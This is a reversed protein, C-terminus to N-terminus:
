MKFIVWHYLIWGYNANRYINPLLESNPPKNKWWNKPSNNMRLSLIIKRLCKLLLNLPQIFYGQNPQVLHQTLHTQNVPNVFSDTQGLHLLPRLLFHQGSVINSLINVADFLSNRNPLINWKIEFHTSPFLKKSLTFWNIM